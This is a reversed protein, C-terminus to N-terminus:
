DDLRRVLRGGEIWFVADPEFGPPIRHGVYLVTLRPDERLGAFIERNCDDELDSAFQDFLLIPPQRLLARALAIRRMEGGSLRGGNPGVEFDSGRMDFFSALGCRKGLDVLTVDSQPRTGMFINDQVSGSFLFV